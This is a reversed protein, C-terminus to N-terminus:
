AAGRNLVNWALACIRRSRQYEWNSPGAFLAVWLYWDLARRGYEYRHHVTIVGDKHQIWIKSAGSRMSELQVPTISLSNIKM